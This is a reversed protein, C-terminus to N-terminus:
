SRVYMSKLFDAKTEKDWDASIMYNVVLKDKSGFLFMKDTNPGKVQWIVYKEAVNEEIKNVSMGQKIWHDADWEYFDNVLKFKSKSATYFPYIKAPSKGISVTDADVNAFYQQQKSEDFATRVWKGPIEVNGEPLFLYVTKDAQENYVEGRVM